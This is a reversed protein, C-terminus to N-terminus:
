GYTSFYSDGIKHDEEAIMVFGENMEDYEWRVTNQHRHNVMDAFPVMCIEYRGAIQLGFWRSNVISWYHCYQHHTFKAGIEPVLEM